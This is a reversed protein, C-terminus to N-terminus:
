KINQHRKGKKMMKENKSHNQVMALKAFQTNDLIGDLSNIFRDKENSRKNKIDAMQSLVKKLEADSIEKDDNIKDRLDKTAEFLEDNIKNVVERHERMKPFFKEAQESTLELRETMRFAMMQERNEGRDRDGKNMMGMKKPGCKARPSHRAGPQAYISSVLLIVILLMTTKKM